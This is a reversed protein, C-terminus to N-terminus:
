VCRSTYLLCTNARVDSVIDDRRGADVGVRADLIQSFFINGLEAIIDVMVQLYFAIQTAFNGHVDLAQHFDAAITAETM